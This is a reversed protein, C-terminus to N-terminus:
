RTERYQKRSLRVGRKSISDKMAGHSTYGTLVKISLSERWPLSAVPTFGHITFRLEPEPRLACGNCILLNLDCIHTTQSAFSGIKGRLGGIM